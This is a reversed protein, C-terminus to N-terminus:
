AQRLRGLQIKEYELKKDADMCRAEQIKVMETRVTELVDVIENPQLILLLNVIDGVPNAKKVCRDDYENM